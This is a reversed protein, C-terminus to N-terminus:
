QSVQNQGLTEQWRKTIRYVHGKNREVDIKLTRCIGSPSLIKGTNAYEAELMVIIKDQYDSAHKERRQTSTTDAVSSVSSQFINIGRDLAKMKLKDERKEQRLTNNQEIDGKQSLHNAAILGTPITIFSLLGIINNVIPPTGFYKGLQLNILWMAILYFIYAGGNLAFPLIYRDEKTKIWSFLSQVFLIAGVYGLMELVLATIIAIVGSAQTAYQFVFLELLMKFIHLGTFFAPVIPALIPLVFVALKAFPTEAAEIVERNWDFIKALWNNNM